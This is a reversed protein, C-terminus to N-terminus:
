RQLRLYLIKRIVWFFLLLSISLVVVSMVFLVDIGTVAITQIRLGGALNTWWFAFNFIDMITHGIISLILSESAYALIGLM